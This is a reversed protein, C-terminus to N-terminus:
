EKGGGMRRNVFEAADDEECGCIAFNGILLLRGDRYTLINGDSDRFFTVKGGGVPCMVFYDNRTKIEADACIEAGGDIEVAGDIVARGFICSGGSIVASGRVDAKGYVWSNDEVRASGEVTAGDYVQGGGCVVASDWIRGNGYVKGGTFVCADDGVWCNGAHSLNSEDEIFGGIMGAKVGGFDRLARIRHLKRNWLKKTEETFEYKREM